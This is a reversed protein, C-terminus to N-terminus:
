WCMKLLLQDLFHTKNSAVIGCRMSCHSSKTMAFVGLPWKEKKKQLVLCLTHAHHAWRDCTCAVLVCLLNYIIFTFIVATITGRPIAYSPNKLEGPLCLPDIHRACARVHICVGVCVCVSLCVGSMNSGAMIGTCGNFMVAFVTAFSMMTGTTYDLSYDAAPPSLLCVSVRMLALDLDPIKKKKKKEIRESPRKSNVWDVRQTQWRMKLLEM